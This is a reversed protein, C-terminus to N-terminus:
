ACCMPILPSLEHCSESEKWKIGVALFKLHRRRGLDKKMLLPMQELEERCWVSM